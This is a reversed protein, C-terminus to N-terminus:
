AMTPRNLPGGCKSCRLRAAHLLENLRVVQVARCHSCVQKTIRRKKKKKPM